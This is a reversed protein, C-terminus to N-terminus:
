YQINLLNHTILGESRHLIHCRHANTPIPTHAQKSAHTRVYTYSCTSAYRHRLSNGLGVRDASAERNLWFTVWSLIVILTSPVYVQILFYGMHRKLKFNVKLTSYEGGSIYIIVVSISKSLIYYSCSVYIYIIYIFVVSLSISSIYYSCSVYIYIIYIVVVSMSISLISLYLQYLYLHYLYICSIYIYIIYIFVVSISKSLISLYLQYLYLYYIIVVVSM